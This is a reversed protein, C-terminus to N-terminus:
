SEAHIKFIKTLDFAQRFGSPLVQFIRNTHEYQQAPLAISQGRSVLDTHGALIQKMPIAIWAHEPQFMLIHMSDSINDDIIKELMSADILGLKATVDLPFEPDPFRALRYNAINRLEMMWSFPPLGEVPNSILVDSNAFIDEYLHLACEHDNRYRDRRGNLRIAASGSSNVDFHYWSRNRILGHRRSCLRARVTYFLSYYLKVIAWSRNNLSLDSCAGVFSLLGKHLLSAADQDLANVAVPLFETTILCEEIKQRYSDWRDLDRCGVHGEM